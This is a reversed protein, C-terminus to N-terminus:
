SWKQVIRCIVVWRALRLGYHGRCEDGNKFLLVPVESGASGDRREIDAKVAEGAEVGGDSQTFSSDM